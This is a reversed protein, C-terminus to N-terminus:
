GEPAVRRAESPQALIREVFDLREQAEALERRLSGVEAELAELGAPGETRGARHRLRQAWLGFVLALAAHGAAHWPEAEGAAFGVGVLNIASLAVAMPRWLPSTFTM